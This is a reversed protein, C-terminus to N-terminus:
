RGEVKIIRPNLLGVEENLRYGRSRLGNAVIEIDELSSDGFVLTVKKHGHEAANLIANDAYTAMTMVAQSPMAQVPGSSFLVAALLLYKM